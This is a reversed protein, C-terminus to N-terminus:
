VPVHWDFGEQEGVAMKFAKDYKGGEMGRGALVSKLFLNCVITFIRVTEYWLEKLTQQFNNLGIWHVQKNLSKKLKM